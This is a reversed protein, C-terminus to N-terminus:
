YNNYIHTKSNYKPYYYYLPPEKWEEKKDGRMPENLYYNYINDGYRSHYDSYRKHYDRNYNYQEYQNIYKDSPREYYNKNQEITPEINIEVAKQKTIPYSKLNDQPNMEFSITRNEKLPQYQFQYPQQQTFNSFKSKKLAISSNNYFFNCKNDKDFHKKENFVIKRPEYRKPGFRSYPNYKNEKTQYIFNNVNENRSNIYNNRRNDYSTIDDCSVSRKKENLHNNYMYNSNTTNNIKNNAINRKINDSKLYNRVGWDLFNGLLRNEKKRLDIEYQYSNHNIPRYM